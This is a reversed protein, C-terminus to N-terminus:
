RATKATVHDLQERDFFQSNVCDSGISQGVQAMSQGDESVLRYQHSTPKNDISWHTWEVRYPSVQKYSVTDRSVREITSTLKQEDYKMVYRDNIEGGDANIGTWVVVLWGFGVNYIERTSKKPPNGCFKSKALNLEWKGITLDGPDPVDVALAAGSAFLAVVAASLRLPTLHSM